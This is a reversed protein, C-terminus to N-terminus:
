DQETTHDSTPLRRLAALVRALLAPDTEAFEGRSVRPEALGIEGRVVLWREVTSGGPCSPSLM